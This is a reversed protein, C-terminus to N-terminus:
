PRELVEDYGAGLMEDRFMEFSLPLTPM